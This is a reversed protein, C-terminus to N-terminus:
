RGREVAGEGREGVLRPASQESAQALGVAERDARQGFRERHRQRRHHLMEVHQRIGPQDRAVLAAARDGAPKAGFRHRFGIFPEVAVLAEPAFAEIM